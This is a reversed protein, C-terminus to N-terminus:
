TPPDSVFSSLLSPFYPRVPPPHLDEDSFSNLLRNTEGATDNLGGTTASETQGKLMETVKRQCSHDSGHLPKMHGSGFM